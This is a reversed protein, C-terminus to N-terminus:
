AVKVPDIVYRSLMSTVRPNDRVRVAGFAGYGAVGFPAERALKTTETALIACSSVVAGPYASWGWKATLRVSARNCYTPWSWGIPKILNYPWGEESDVIGNLPQLEYATQTTEFVGDGDQDLELILGDTTWFDPVRIRNELDPEPYLLRATATTDKYFRRGCHGDIDRSATGLSDSLESDKSTDAAGVGVTVYSKLKALTLYWPTGVELSGLVVNSASGTVVWGFLWVGLQNATFTGSWTTSVNTTAPTSETGNPATLNLVVNADAPATVNLTVSENLQYRV